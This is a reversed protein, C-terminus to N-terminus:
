SRQGIQMAKLRGRHIRKRKWPCFEFYRCCLINCIICFLIGGIVIMIFALNEWLARGMTEHWEPVYEEVEEAEDTMDFWRIVHNHSDAVYANQTTHDVAIATPRFFRTTSGMGDLQGPTTVSGGLLLLSPHCSAGAAALAAATAEEDTVITGDDATAGAVQECAGGEHPLPTGEAAQAALQTEVTVLDLRVLRHEAPDSILLSPWGYMFGIGAAGRLAAETGSSNAVTVVATSYAGDADEPLTAPDPPTAAPEAAMTARRVYPSEDAVYVYRNEEDVTVARPLVFSAFRGPGDASGEAGSGALTRVEASDVHVVRVAHNFPDAVFLQRARVHLALGRPQSFAAARGRGDVFGTVGPSGALTRARGTALEVARIVRNQSDAVFLVGAYEDVAVGAPEDLLCAAGVGDAYGRTAGGVLTTVEATAIDIARVRHNGMDAVYLVQAQSAVAVASPLWFSANTSPGDAYGSVGSGALTRVFYDDGKNWPVYALSSQLLVLTLTASSRRSRRM